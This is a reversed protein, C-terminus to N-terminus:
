GTGSDRSGNFGGSPLTKLGAFWEKQGPAKGRVIHDRILNINKRAEYLKPAYELAMRFSRAAAQYEERRALLVGLNNWGEAYRPLKECLERFGELALVDMGARLAAFAYLLVPKPDGGSFQALKKYYGATRAHDGADSSIEGLLRYCLAEYGGASAAEELCVLAEERRGIYFLAAGLLYQREAYAGEDYGPKELLALAEHYSALEICCRAKLLALRPGAASEPLAGCYELCTQFEGRIFFDRAILPLLAADSRGTDRVAQLLAQWDSPPPAPALFKGFAAAAEEEREQWALAIAFRYWDEKELASRLLSPSYLQALLRYEGDAYLEGIIERTSNDPAHTFIRQAAQAFAGRERAERLCPLALRLLPADGEMQPVAEAFAHGAEETKDMRMLCLARLLPADEPSGEQRSVREALARAEDFRRLRYLLLAHIYLFEPEEAGQESLLRAMDLARENEELLLSAKLLLVRTEGRLSCSHRAFEELRASMDKLPSLYAAEIPAFNTEPRLASPLAKRCLEAFSEELEEQTRRAVEEVFVRKDQIPQAASQTRVDPQAPKTPQAPLAQPAPDPQALQSANGASAGQAPKAQEPQAYGGGSSPLPALVPLAQPAPDPQALQPANGAFAGQAPQAAAASGADEDVLPICMFHPVRDLQLWPELEARLWINQQNVEAMSVTGEHGCGACFRSM